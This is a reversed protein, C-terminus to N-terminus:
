ADYVESCSAHKDQWKNHSMKLIPGQPTLKELQGYWAQHFLGQILM